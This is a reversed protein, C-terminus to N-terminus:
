YKYSYLDEVTIGADEDLDGPLTGQERADEITFDRMVELKKIYQRRVEKTLLNISDALYREHGYPALQFMHKWLYNVTASTVSVNMLTERKNIGASKLNFRFHLDYFASGIYFHVDYESYNATNHKLDDHFFTLVYSIQSGGVDMNIIHRRTNRDDLYNTTINRSMVGGNLWVEMLKPERIIDHAIQIDGFILKTITSEIRVEDPITWIYIALCLWLPYFVLYKFASIGSM